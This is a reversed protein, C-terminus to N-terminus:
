NGTENEAPSDQSEISSVLIPSRQTVRQTPLQPVIACSLVTCLQRPLWEQRTPVVDCIM